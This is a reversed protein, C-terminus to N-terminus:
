EGIPPRAGAPLIVVDELTPIRDPWEARDWTGPAFTAVPKLEENLVTLQGEISKSIVIDTGPMYTHTKGERDVVRIM